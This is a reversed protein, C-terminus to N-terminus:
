AVTIEVVTLLYVGPFTVYAYYYKKTLRTLIYDIVTMTQTSFRMTQASIRMTQTCIRMIQTSMRMTQARM